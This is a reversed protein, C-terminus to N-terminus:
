RRVLPDLPHDSINESEDVDVDVPAQFQGGGKGEKGFMGLFMGRANLVQIRKNGTDAVCVNGKLSIAVGSPNRFEGELSGSKGM